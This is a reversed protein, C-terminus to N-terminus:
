SQPSPAPSEGAPLRSLAFAGVAYVALAVLFLARFGVVMALITSLISAIVSFFGNVAWAWAVYERPSVGLRVVAGLGIPLFAGLCLGFPAVVALAVAVRVGLSSGVFHVVLSPLIERAGLVVVVLAALLTFVARAPAWSFRGSLISGVGSFVLLAALTISLSYTPYGLLLTLKQILSVEVLMFGLGLSAFYTAVAGKHPMEQVTKRIAFFPLLLLLAALLTVVGLFRVTIREAVSDEQDIVFGKGQGRSLADAFRAFHWFFPADDRVPDVQYPHREFFAPLEASPTLIARTVPSADMRMGPTFRAASDPIGRLDAYFESVQAPSFAQKGLLVALEKFPPFGPSSAVLVHKSFDEVGEAAFAARATSVYRTTRNPKRDYDLEGFQACVIGADTLHRLAETIMEQTYLYSESLVFAGSTAANMAAYSDPAVFWVLDFKEKSQSLFWRGDGNLLTVRPDETLHGTVDAFVTTLLSYTVPNLEVGTVHSARFFLSAVVEHGGAAGIILVKPHEPLVAFPLSRPDTKLYEFPKMDGDYRRLGSGPQGDHFVLYLDGKKFPHDAVDIRFVPSWKSFRVVGANRFDEFSKTKAVVPDPLFLGSAAPVLLSLLTAFALGRLDRAGRALPLGALALVFGALMVTRPPGLHGILPVAISAGLAAGLLDAGYLKPSETGADALISSVIVGVCFFTATLLLSVLVLKGIELPSDVAEAINLQVRSVVQYSLLVSAGAFISSLAIVRELPERRLRASIAVFIGGAGIGLLGTGLVLYTFYYFVKFSFIRTYAIELLLAGLSTLFIEPYLPRKPM